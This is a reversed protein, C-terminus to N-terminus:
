KTFRGNKTRKRGAKDFYVGAERESDTLGDEGIYEVSEDEVTYLVDDENDEPRDIQDVTGDENNVYVKGEEAKELDNYKDIEGTNYEESDSFKEQLAKDEAEMRAFESEVEGNIENYKAEIQDKLNIQDVLKQVFKDAFEITIYNAIAPNLKGDKVAVEIQQDFFKWSAVYLQNVIRDVVEEKSTAASFIYINEKIVQDVLDKTITDAFKNLFEIAENQKSNTNFKIIVFLFCAIALVVIISLIATTSM